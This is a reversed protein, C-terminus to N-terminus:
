ASVGERAVSRCPWCVRHNDVSQFSLSCMLCHSRHTPVQPAPGQSPVGHILDIGAVFEDLTMDSPLTYVGATVASEVHERVWTRRTTDQEAPTM